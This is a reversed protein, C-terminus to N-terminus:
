AAEGTQRRTIYQGHDVRPRQSDPKPWRSHVIIRRAEEAAEALADHGNENMWKLWSSWSPDDPTVTFQPVPKSASPARATGDSAREHACSPEIQHNNVSQTVGNGGKASVPTVRKPDSTVRSSLIDGKNDGKSPSLTDGMVSPIEGDIELTTAGGVLSVVGEALWGLLQVNLKWENTDKPGNGGQRVLNILGVDRFAKLARQATREDCGSKDALTETAPFISGGADSAYDALKLMILKQAQTPFTIDWVMTMLRISM